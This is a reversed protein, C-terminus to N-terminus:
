CSWHLSSLKISKEDSVHHASGHEKGGRALGEGERAVARQGEGAPEVPHVAEGLRGHVRHPEASEECREQPQKDERPRLRDVCDERDRDNRRVDRVCCRDNRAKREVVVEFRTREAEASEYARDRKYDRAKRM